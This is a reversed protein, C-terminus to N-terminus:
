EAFPAVRRSTAEESVSRGRLMGAVAMVTAVVLLFLGLLTSVVAVVAGPGTTTIDIHISSAALPYAFSVGTTGNCYGFIVGLGIALCVVSAILVGKVL